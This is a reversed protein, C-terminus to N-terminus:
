SVHRVGESAQMLRILAAHGRVDKLGLWHRAITASSGSKGCGCVLVSKDHLGSSRWAMLKHAIRLHYSVGSLEHATLPGCIPCEYTFARSM